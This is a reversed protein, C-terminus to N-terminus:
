HSSSMKKLQFVLKNKKTNDLPFCVPFFINKFFPTTYSSRPRKIYNWDFLFDMSSPNIIYFDNMGFFSSMFSSRKGKIIESNYVETAEHKAIFTIM